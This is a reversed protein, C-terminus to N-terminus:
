CRELVGFVQHVDINDNVVTGEVEVWAHAQFPTPRSGIVLQARIGSDRLLSTLVISRQLCLVRKWYWVCALDLARCAQQTNAQAKVKPKVQQRRVADCMERFQGRRLRFELNLLAFYAKLFLLM